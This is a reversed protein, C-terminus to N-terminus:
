RVCPRSIGLSSLTPVLKRSITRESLRNWPRLYHNTSRESMRRMICTAEYFQPTMLPLSSANIHCFRTTLVFSRLHLLCVSSLTIQTSTIISTFRLTKAVTHHQLKHLYVTQHRSYPAFIPNPLVLTLCLTPGKAVFRYSNQITDTGFAV